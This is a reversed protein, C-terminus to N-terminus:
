PAVRPTPVSVQCDSPTVANTAFAYAQWRRQLEPFSWSYHQWLAKEYGLSEATRLFQTFVQADQSATLFAVLSVSQAYFAAVHRTPYGKMEMLVQADVLQGAQRYRPLQQIQAQIQRLPEGLVAMGENAWRPLAKEDFMGHLVAHITEHPLVASVMTPCDCHLDIRRSLLRGGDFQFTSHGPVAEPVGTVLSYDRANAHLYIDCRPTWGSPAQGFWKRYTAARTQEATQGLLAAMEAADKHFVRFNATQTVSWGAGDVGQLHQVQVRVNGPHGGVPAKDNRASFEAQTVNGLVFALFTVPPLFLHM